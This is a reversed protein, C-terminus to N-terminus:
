HSLAIELKGLMVLEAKNVGSFSRAVSWATQIIINKVELTYFHPHENKYNIFADYMDQPDENFAEVGEFVISILHAADHGLSDKLNDVELWYDLICKKLKSFEEDRVVKDSAAIAYFLKGLQVYFLTNKKNTNTM